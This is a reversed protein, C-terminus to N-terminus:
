FGLVDLASHAAAQEAEKKSRGDGTAIVRDGIVIEVRFHKEHELGWV